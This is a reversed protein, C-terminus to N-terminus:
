ISLAAPHIEATDSIEWVGTIKSNLIEFMLNDSTNLTAGKHPIAIFNFHVSAERKHTASHLFEVRRLGPQYSQKPKAMLFNIVNNIGEVRDSAQEAASPPRCWVVKKDLLDIMKETDSALIADIFLTTISENKM